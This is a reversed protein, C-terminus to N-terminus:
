ACAIAETKSFSLSSSLLSSSSFPMPMFILPRFFDLDFFFPISFLVETHATHNGAVICDELERFVATPIWCPSRWFSRFTSSPAFAGLSVPLELCPCNSDNLLLAMFSGAESTATQNERRRMLEHVFFVPIVM